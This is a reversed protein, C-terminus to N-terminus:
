VTYSINKTFEFRLIAPAGNHSMRLRGIIKGSFTRRESGRFM